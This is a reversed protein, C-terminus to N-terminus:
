RGILISKQSKYVWLCFNKPNQWILLRVLNTEQSAGWCARRYWGLYLHSSAASLRPLINQHHGKTLGFDILMGSRTTSHSDGYEGGTLRHVGMGVLRGSASCISIVTTLLSIENHGRTWYVVWSIVGKRCCSCYRFCWCRM